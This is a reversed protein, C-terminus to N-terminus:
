PKRINLTVGTKPSVLQGHDIIKDMLRKTLWVDTLCYDILSGWRGLQYDIPAVAGNGTKGSQGQFNAKITADLGFGNHTEKRFTCGLGSAFWMEQLIDYNKESWRIGAPWGVAASIVQDDFMLNNFGALVNRKEALEFFAPMNDYAFVRYRDERYDYCCICSIGMGRHDSWGHCYEVGYQGVENKGLIAKKIEIDYVLM